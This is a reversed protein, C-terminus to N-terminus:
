FSFYLQMRRWNRFVLLRMMVVVQAQINQLTTQARTSKKLEDNKDTPAAGGEEERVGSHYEVETM